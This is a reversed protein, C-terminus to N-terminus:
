EIVFIENNKAKFFYYYDLFERSDESFVTEWLKRTKQHESQELKRLEM